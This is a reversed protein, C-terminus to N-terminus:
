LPCILGLVFHQTILFLSLSPIASLSHRPLFVGLTTNIIRGALILLAVIHLSSSNSLSSFDAHYNVFVQLGAASFFWKKIHVQRWEAISHARRM